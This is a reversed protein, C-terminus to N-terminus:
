RATGDLFRKLASELTDGGAEFIDNHHAGDIPLTTVRKSGDARAATALQDMMSFPIIEDDRGHVLLVPVAVRGIKRVSEFRNRLLITAPTIWPMVARATRAISTFTSLTVLGAIADGERSALDIAVGGGISWGILVIRKPDVDPRWRLHKLCAMGGARLAPESPQGESLGYGPYDAVMINVALRRRFYDIHYGCDALCMANGYFFLVTPREQADAAPQGDPGIAPAFLATIRTGEHTTLHLLEGGAPPEVRAEPRGQTAHGPFLIQAQLAYLVALLGALPLVVLILVLRVIRWRLRPRPRTSPEAPMMGANDPMQSSQALPPGASLLLLM